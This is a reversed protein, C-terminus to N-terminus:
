GPGRNTDITRTMSGMRRTTSIQWLTSVQNNNCAVPLMVSPLTLGSCSMLSLSTSKESRARLNCLSTPRVQNLLCRGTTRPCAVRKRNIIACAIQSRRRLSSGRRQPSRVDPDPVWRNCICETLLRGFVVPHGFISPSHAPSCHLASSVAHYPTTTCVM